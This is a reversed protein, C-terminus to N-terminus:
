DPLEWRVANAFSGAVADGKANRAPEFRARQELLRCTATDLISHGTSGTITCDTVRGDAAIELRFRATGTLERAIWSSRYDNSTIWRGPDNRPRAALPAVGSPTSVASPQPAPIATPDSGPREVIPRTPLVIKTTEFGPTPPEFTIPPTPAVITEVPARAEPRPERQPEPSPEPPPPKPLEIQAGTLPKPPPKLVGTFSLGTILATGIAAHVAVVAIMGTPSPRRIQDAYAM